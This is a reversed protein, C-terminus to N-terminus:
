GPNVTAMIRDVTTRGDQYQGIPLAELLPSRGRPRNINALGLRATPGRRRHSFTLICMETARTMAVYLLRREEEIRAKPHPIIGREVGMVICTNVTIGKSSTMSMIRVSKSQTALDKAVPELQGLFYGLGNDVPVLRGVDEFLAIQLENLQERGVFDLVWGGWGTDGFEVNNLDVGEIERHIRDVLRTTASASNRTPSGPYEPHLNLLVDGYKEQHRIAENFIYDRFQRSIGRELKLLTWWALSDTSDVILHLKALIKRFEQDLFLNKIRGTEVADIGREHLEPILLNAWTNEQSRVLVVIEGLPVGSLERAKILDAVGRVEDRENNFRLYHFTGPNSDAKYRLPPKRPRDPVTQIMMTAPQLINRGCRHSLTLKYDICDEFEDPFRLIGEPAAMRFGYISQDDDGIAPFRLIGEPAAMRFGYISQDDDGIAIV